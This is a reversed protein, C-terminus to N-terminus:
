RNRGLWQLYEDLVKWVDGAGMTVVADGAVVNKILYDCIADFGDIFMADSGNAKIKDVLVRANVEKKSQVSDRVFYIEPVITIDALKFSEAFDYLLFRTRSYQHPQFVCWLRKPRYRERIAKLSARIETPHHAYDDLVTVGNIQAKLMLRRDVGTFQPLLKLVKSPEVGAHVAAAIVALANAVNHRGPISTKTRGLLERNHYVDFTYFGTNEEINEAFFDCNKTFGFTKVDIKNDKLCSDTLIKAVNQTDGNAILTGGPKVGMAFDRFAEVIEAVDKFYDLHDAEINLICGIQSKLNLFSRDYECAEAVFWKGKGQASGSSDFPKGIGSNGGLQPIDAGVIFTPELGALKLVYALWASSTSKGHTGAVAIGSYFNFVRGLMEAYKYIRINLRRALALEPNDERIAASIVVADAKPDLNHEKHGIKIDAGSNNLRDIVAGGAQDSGTVNAKHRVLLAALGSMGIGAAGIFHFRKGSLGNFGNTVVDRGRNAEIKVASAAFCASISKQEEGRKGRARRHILSQSKSRGSMDRRKGQGYKM